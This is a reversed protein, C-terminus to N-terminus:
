INGLSNISLVPIVVSIKFITPIPNLEKTKFKLLKQLFLLIM